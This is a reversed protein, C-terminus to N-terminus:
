RIKPITQQPAQSDQWKQKKKQFPSVKNCQSAVSCAATFRKFIGAVKIPM